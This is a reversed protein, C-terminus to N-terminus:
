LHLLAPGGGLLCQLQRGTNSILKVQPRQGHDVFFGRALSGGVQPFRHGLSKELRYAVGVLQDCLIYPAKFICLVKSAAKCAPRSPNRNSPTANGDSGPWAWIWCPICAMYANSATWGRSVSAVRGSMVSGRAWAARSM